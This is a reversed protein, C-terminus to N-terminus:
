NVLMSKLLLQATDQGQLLKVPYRSTLMLQDRRASSPDIVSDRAFVFVPHVTMPIDIALSDVKSFAVTLHFYASTDAGMYLDFSRLVPNGASLYDPVSELIIYRYSSDTHQYTVSDWAVVNFSQFTVYGQKSYRLKYVGRPLAIQWNGASDTYTSYPTSLVEVLVSDHRPRPRYPAKTIVRGGIKSIVETQSQQPADSDCSSLLSVCVLFFIVSKLSM